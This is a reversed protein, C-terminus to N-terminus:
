TPQSSRIREFRPPNKAGYGFYAPTLDAPNQPLTPYDFRRESGLTDKINKFFHKISFPTRLDLLADAGKNVAQEFDFWDDRLQYYAARKLMEEVPVNAEIYDIFEQILRDFCQDIVADGFNNQYTQLLLERAARKFAYVQHIYRKIDTTALKERPMEMSPKFKIKIM